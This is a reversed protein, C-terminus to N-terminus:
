SESGTAAGRRATRGPGGGGAQRRIHGSILAAALAALLYALPILAVRRREFAAMPTWEGLGQLAGVGGRCRLNTVVVPYATAGVM